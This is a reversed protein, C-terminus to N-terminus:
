GVAKPSPATVSSDRIITYTASLSYQEGPLIEILDFAINGAEVCIFHKYDSNGLDLMKKSSKIWPNWVVATKTSTSSIAIRRKFAADVIVLTNKVDSYIRDVEETVIVPGTQLKQAGQDLKDFYECNELGLIQVHKIHSVHLYSHLAQTISFKQEGTNQTTLTLSLTVGVTVTLTLTFPKQWTREKKASEKFMLTVSTEDPNCTDTAIVQWYHTRVFGHNPRQLGKPDPGFWPWCVPIGGRIAKGERYDSDPSLFLLNEAEHVPQYSLVQAAYVSMLASAQRNTIRIFPFGGEGRTFQLVDPHGFQQNLQTSDM